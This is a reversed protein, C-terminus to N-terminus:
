LWMDPRMERISKYKDDGIIIHDLITIGMIKDANKLTQTLTLDETSPSVDGSPHNHAVIISAANLICAAKFVERPHVICSDLTGVSIIEASIVKNKRDLYLCAFNERDADGIIEKLIKYADDAFGIIPSGDYSVSKEKVIKIVNIRKM